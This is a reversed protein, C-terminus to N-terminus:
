ILAFPWAPKFEVRNGAPDVTAVRRDVWWLGRVWEFPVDGDALQDAAEELSPVALVVPYGTASIHPNELLRLRLYTQASKFRLEEPAAGNSRVEVLCGIERYFWRLRDEIGLPAERVVDDIAQIRSEAM